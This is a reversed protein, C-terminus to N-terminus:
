ASEVVAWPLCAHAGKVRNVAQTVEVDAALSALAYADIPDVGYRVSIHTVLSDVAQHVAADLDEDFGLTVLHSATEAWPLRPLGVVDAARLIDFRLHAREMSTEVATQNVEGDGQLAHADGAYFGAGPRFVPLHLSTGEVLERLDINGGFPGPPVSSHPGDDAPAVGMIGLFPRLPLTIGPLVETTMLDRDLRLHRLSGEPFREALVGRGLPAPLALNFGWEGPRLGVVAVRLVDGPAAGDIEIPGTVSHPGLPADARLELVDEMTMDPTVRGGWHSWTEMAVEDGDAIRLVPPHAADIVGVRVTREDARLQHLVM